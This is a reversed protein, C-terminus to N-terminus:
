VGAYIAYLRIDEIRNGQFQVRIRFPHGFAERSRNAVEGPYDQGGTYYCGYYKYLGGTECVPGVPSM